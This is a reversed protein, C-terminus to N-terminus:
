RATVPSQGSGPPQAISPVEYTVKIAWGRRRGVFERWGRASRAREGAARRWCRRLAGVASFGRASDFGHEADDGDGHEERCEGRAHRPACRPAPRHASLDDPGEGQGGVGRVGGALPAADRDRRGRSRRDPRRAGAADGERARDAPRARRHADLAARQARGVLPESGDLALRSRDDQRALGDGAEAGVPHEAESGALRSVVVDIGGGEEGGLAWRQAGRWARGSASGAASRWLRGNGERGRVALRLPRGCAGRRVGLGCGEEGPEAERQERCGRRDSGEPTSAAPGRRATDRREDGVRSPGREVADKRPPCVM